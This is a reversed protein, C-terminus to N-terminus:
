GEGRRRRVTVGVSRAFRLAGPKEVTVEVEEVRADAALCLAALEAALREVLMPSGSEVHEIIGKAVSRYNVADDIADGAAAARTDTWMRVNVLVDQPKVREDPNIGVIGRVLLDRITIVDV